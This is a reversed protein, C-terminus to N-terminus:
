RPFTRQAVALARETLGSLEAIVAVLRVVAGASRNRLLLAHDPALPPDIVGFCVLYLDVLDADVEGGVTARRRAQGVEDRTLARVRVSGGWEPMEVVQETIDKASFLEDLTLMHPATEYAQTEDSM